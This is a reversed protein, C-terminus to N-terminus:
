SEAYDVECEQVGGCDTRLQYDRMEEDSILGLRHLAICAARGITYKAITSRGEFDPHTATWCENMTVRGFKVGILAARAVLNQDEETLKM